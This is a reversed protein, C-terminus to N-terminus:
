ERGAALKGAIQQNENAAQNAESKWDLTIAVTGVAGRACQKNSLKALQSAYLM